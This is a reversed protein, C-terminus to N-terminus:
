LLGEDRDGGGRSGRMMKDFWLRTLYYHVLKHNGDRDKGFDSFTRMELRFFHREEAAVWRLKLRDAYSGYVATQSRIRRRGFLWNLIPNRPHYANMAIAHLMTYRGKRPEGGAGAMVEFAQCGTIDKTIPQWQGNAKISPLGATPMGVRGSMRVVGDVDLRWSPEDINVGLRGDSTLTLGRAQEPKEHTVEASKARAPIPPAPPRKETQGKEQPTTTPPPPTAPLDVTAAGGGPLIRGLGLGRRKVAPPTEPDKEAAESPKAPADPLLLGPRFHLSDGFKGHDLTWSADKTGLGKYLSMLRLNRGISNLKLGDVPSKDFGDEVQNVSSDILDRYHSATPLAGDAFFSKLTTRDRKTM